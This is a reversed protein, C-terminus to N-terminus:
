GHCGEGGCDDNVVAERLDCARTDVAICEIEILADKPLRSVEIVSRAPYPASFYISYLRNVVEYDDFNKLFITTKVVNELKLGAELLVRELNEYAQKTQVKIDQTLGDENALQGSIFVLNGIQLGPSYPGLVNVGEPQLKKRKLM